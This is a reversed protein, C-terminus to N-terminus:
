PNGIFAAGFADQWRNIAVDERKTNLADTARSSFTDLRQAFLARHDSPWSDALDDRVAGPMALKFDWVDALEFRMAQCMDWVIAEMSGDTKSLAEFRRAPALVQKEYARGALVTLHLGSPASSASFKEDRWRKFMVIARRFRGGSKVDLDDIWDLLAAPDTFLFGGNARDVIQYAGQTVPMGPVLDINFGDQYRIRVCKHRKEIRTAYETRLRAQLYGLIYDPTRRNDFFTAPFKHFDIPVIYDIDYSAQGGLPRVMTGAAFSGQGVLPGLKIDALPGDADVFEQLRNVARRIKDRREANPTIESQFRSFHRPLHM